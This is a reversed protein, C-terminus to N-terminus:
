HVQAVAAQSIWVIRQCITFQVWLITTYFQTLSFAMISACTVIIPPDNKKEEFFLYIFLLPSIISAITQKKEFIIIDM